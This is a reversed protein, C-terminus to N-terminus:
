VGGGPEFPIEEREVQYHCNVEVDENEFSSASMVIGSSYIDIFDVTM